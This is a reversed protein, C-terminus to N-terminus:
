DGGDGKGKGKGKGNGNDNQRPPHPNVTAAPASRLPAIIAPVTTPPAATPPETPASETPPVPTPSPARTALPTPTPVGPPVTAIVSQDTPAAHETSVAISAIAASDHRQVGVAIGIVVALFALLAYLAIWRRRRRHPLPATATAEPKTITPIPTM